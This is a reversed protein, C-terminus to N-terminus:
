KEVINAIQLRKRRIQHYNFNNSERRKQQLCKVYFTKSNRIMETMIILHHIDKIEMMLINM